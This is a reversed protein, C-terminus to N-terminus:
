TLIGLKMPYFNLKTPCHVQLAAKTRHPYRETIKDWRRGEQKLSVLLADKNPSCSSRRGPQGPRHGRQLLPESGSNDVGSSSYASSLSRPSLDELIAFLMPELELAKLSLLMRIFIADSEETTSFSVALTYGTYLWLWDRREQSSVRRFVNGGHPWSM